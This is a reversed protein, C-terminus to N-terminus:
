NKPKEIIHILKDEMFSCSIIQDGSQKCFVEFDKKAAPDTTIVKLRSGPKLATLERKLRLVPLPCKLGSFDLLKIMSNRSIM